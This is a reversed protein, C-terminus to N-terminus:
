DKIKQIAIMDMGAFKGKGMRYGPPLNYNLIAQYYKLKTDVSGMVGEKSTSSFLYLPKYYIAENKTIVEKLISIVTAMIKTYTKLDSKEYQADIGEITYAIAFGIVRQDEVEFVSPLEIDLKNRKDIETLYVEVPTEDNSSLIAKFKGIFGYKWKSITYKYPEINKLDGVENIMESILSILSLKPNVM